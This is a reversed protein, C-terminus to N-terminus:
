KPERPEYRGEAAKHRFQLAIMLAKVPRLPLLTTILILPLWLAAHIYFPPQYLVEVVLAAFVVVFGAALIIFVAPGDGSDFFGYDLGCAECRPRLSLFGDFLRGKGCQPCRCTLGALLPSPETM